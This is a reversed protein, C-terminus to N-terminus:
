HFSSWLSYPASFLKELFTVLNGSWSWKAWLAITIVVYWHLFYKFRSYCLLLCYWVVEMVSIMSAGLCLGLIGGTNAIFNSRLLHYFIHIRFNTWYWTMYRDQVILECYPQKIYINIMATNQKMYLLITEEFRNIREEDRGLGAKTWTNGECGGAETVARVEGCLGPYRKELSYKM